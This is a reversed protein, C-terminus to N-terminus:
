APVYQIDASPYVVVKTNKGYSKMLIKLIDEWKNENLHKERPKFRLMSPIDPYENYRILRNINQPIDVDVPLKYKRNKDNSGWVGILYHSVQGAPANAFLVVDGGTQKVSSFGTRLVVAAESVKIFTNILVIDKEEAMHALYHKKAEIIAADRVAPPSGAYISVTEGWMNVICDIAMDLKVFAAAEEMDLRRPNIEWKKDGPQLPMNHNSMITDLSSVGPLIIKGGGSFVAFPHPMMSGISIKLDCMMLESNVHIKNGSSTTGVYTCNDFVN